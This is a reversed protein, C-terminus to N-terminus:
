LVICLKSVIMLAINGDQQRPKGQGRVSDESIRVDLTLNWKSDGVHGDVIYM